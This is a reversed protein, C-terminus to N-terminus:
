RYGAAQLNFMRAYRGDLALLQEHSGQELVRGGEIVLIRDATRVTAFRHSVVLGIRGQLQERLEAFFAAQAVADLASTPEDLIWVPADRYILRALALRQWQGGSLHVAGEFLWGLNTDLQQPLAAVIGDARAARLAAAIAAPDPEDDPRGFAVNERATYQYRTFDQFLVGFHRRLQDPDVDRVDVGGARVRGAAPDYFRLLLNVITSKGAGNEGVLAVMEGRRLHLSVGSLAPATANPYTFHVDELRLGDELVDPLPTPDLRVPLAPSVALFAFFDALFTSHREVEVLTRVAASASWTASSIAAVTAALLGADALRIGTSTAIGFAGVLSAGTAISILLSGRAQAHHIRSIATARREVLSHHRRLLAQRMGNAKTENIFARDTLLGRVSYAEREVRTWLRWADTVRRTARRQWLAGPLVAPLALAALAPNLALLVSIMALVSLSSSLMWFLSRVLWYPRWMDDAARKMQDHLRVDAFQALDLRSGHAAFRQMAAAAVREGLWGGQQESIEGLALMGATALGLGVIDALPLAQARGSAAVVDDVLRRTLWVALPALAAGALSLGLALLLGGPSTQWVLALAARLARRTPMATHGTRTPTDSSVATM